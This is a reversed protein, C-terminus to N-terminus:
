GSTERGMKWFHAAASSIAIKRLSKADDGDASGWGRPAERPSKPASFFWFFFRRLNLVEKKQGRRALNITKKTEEKAGKKSTMTKRM